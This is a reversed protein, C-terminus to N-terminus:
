KRYVGYYMRMRGSPEKIPAPLKDSEDTFGIKTLINNLERKTNRQVMYDSYYPSNFITNYILEYFFHIFDIVMNTEDDSFDHEYIILKGGKKLVRYVEKLTKEPKDMHHITM